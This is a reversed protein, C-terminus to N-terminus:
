TGTFGDYFHKQLDKLQGSVHWIYHTAMAKTIRGKLEELFQNKNLTGQKM